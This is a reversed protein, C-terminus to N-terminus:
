TRCRAPAAARAQLGRPHVALLLRCGAGLLGSWSHFSRHGSAPTAPPGLGRPDGRRAGPRAAAWSACRSARWRSAPPPLQDLNVLREIQSYPLDAQHAAWFVGPEDRETAEAAQMHLPADWGWADIGM